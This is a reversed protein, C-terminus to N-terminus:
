PMRDITLTYSGTDGPRLTNAMVRWQGAESLTMDVRSNTGGGGDDDSTTSGSPSTLTLYTDFDGSVMTIVYHDGISGSIPYEDYWSGDPAVLDSSTITGQFVQPDSSGIVDTDPPTVGTDVDPVIPTYDPTADRNLYWFLGGLVGVIIALVTLGICGFLAIKGWPTGKAPPPASPTSASPPTYPPRPDSAPSGPPVTPDTM